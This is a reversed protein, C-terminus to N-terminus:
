VSSALASAFDDEVRDGCGGSGCGHIEAAPLAQPMSLVGTVPDYGTKRLHLALAADMSQAHNAFWPGLEDAMNRVTALDGAQGAALGERMVDLVVKHQMSHCNTSSFRTQAMWRDEQDFHADTHDILAQWVHVLQADPASCAVGLLEVFARHTDDMAPLDLSLADSWQLASM